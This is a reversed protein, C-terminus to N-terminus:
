RTRAPFGVRRAASTFPCLYLFLIGDNALLFVNSCRGERHHFRDQNVSVRPFRLLFGFGRVFITDELFFCRFSHFCPVIDSWRDLRVSYLDLERWM